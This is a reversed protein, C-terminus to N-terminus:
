RRRPSTSSTPANGQGPAKLLGRVMGHLGRLSPSAWFTGNETGAAIAANDLM